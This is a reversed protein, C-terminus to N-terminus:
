PAAHAAGGVVGDWASPDGTEFGDAFLPVVLSRAYIGFGSGDQALGSAWVVLARGDAAVALSPEGQIGVATVNVVEETCVAQGDTDHRTAVVGRSAFGDQGSSEWVSWFTGDPGVAVAPASQEGDAFADMAFPLDRPLAAADFARGYIAPDGSPDQDQDEWTVVFSGDAAVALAPNQQDGIEFTNVPIETTLATGDVAFRRVAVGEGSDDVTEWVVVFCGLADSGIEADEQDFATLVNIPFSAAVPMGDTDFLRGFLNEGSGDIPDDEWVVVFGQDARMAVVADNQDGETVDNVLFPMGLATGTSDYRRGYIGRQDGDQGGASDWVVVFSGDAAVAVAPDAQDDMSVVNVVQEDGAPRGFRDFRRVVVTELSGDQTQSEWVAVFGGCPVAAVVPTDQDSTVFQNVPLEGGVPAVSALAPAVILIVFLSLLALLRM